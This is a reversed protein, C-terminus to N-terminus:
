RPWSPRPSAGRSTPRGINRPASRWRPRSSPSRSAPPTPSCWPAARASSTISTRSRRAVTPAAILVGHNGMLLRRGNGLARALREGEAMAEAFGGYSLDVSVRNYYRASNQDIPLLTPDALSALATAYPPHLHLLVRAQPLAAHIAGHICWSSPDPADPRKMTEPDNGDLALLDSARIRSFHVWKPNILFRKGDPSLAASFHNGVSEHWDHEVALRFAAALDVRLEREAEGDRGNRQAATAM